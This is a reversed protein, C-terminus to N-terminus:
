PVKRLIRLSKKKGRDVFSTEELDLTRANSDIGRNYAARVYKILKKRKAEKDLM